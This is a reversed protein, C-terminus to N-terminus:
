VFFYEYKELAKETMPKRFILRKEYLRNLRNNAASNNLKEEQAALQAATIREGGRVMRELLIKQKEGESFGLVEIGNQYECLIYPSGIQCVLHNPVGEPHEARAEDKTRYYIGNKRANEILKKKGEVAVRLNFYFEDSLNTLVSVSNGHRFNLTFVDIFFLEDLFSASSSQIGECNFTVRRVADTCGLLKAEIRQEFFDGAKLRSALLDPSLDPMKAIEDALRIEM